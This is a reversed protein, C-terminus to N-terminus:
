SDHLPFFREFSEGKADLLGPDRQIEPPKEVKM